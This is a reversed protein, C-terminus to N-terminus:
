VPERRRLEVSSTPSDKKVEGNEMVIIRTGLDMAIKPNHTAFVLIDSPGIRANISRVLNSQTIPDLSATPEDLLWINANGVFLRGITVLQRQGGSLGSGGESIELELGKESQEAIKNLGLLNVVSLVKTDSIERGLTLNSKLTGRFLNPQQPLYSINKAIYEPALEWLDADGVRIRGSTPKYLGALLKLLTTKGSGISGLLAVREGCSISLSPISLSKINKNEYAFEVNHLNIKNPRVDPFVSSNELLRQQPIDLFSDVMSISQAVSEYQVLHSVAQGVPGLIRGGLISCAIMSGMTIKGEGILYVGLIVAFVTAVQGLTQSITTAKTSIRKQSLSYDSISNNIDDWEDLFKKNSGITRITESGQISDVLMGLKENSRINLKNALKKCRIQATIAIIFSILFFALYIFAIESGILYIIILFLLAFPMDILSFIITSSFFQRISDLGNLQATLTGVQNPLKDLQVNLLRNYVYASLKKDIVSSNMDVIKARTLKLLCDILYIFLIGVSLSTLTEMALSPVVRDYVQMTFMSSFVAFINIIVTAVAINILWIPNSRFINFILTKISQSENDKNQTKSFGRRELWAFVTIPLDESEFSLEEGTVNDTIVYLSDRKQFLNWHNNYFITGPLNENKLQTTSTHFVQLDNLDLKKLIFEIQEFPTLNKLRSLDDFVLDIKDNDFVASKHTLLEIIIEKNIM